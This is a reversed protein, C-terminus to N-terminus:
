LAPVRARVGDRAAGGGAAGAGVSAQEVDVRRILGGPGTGALAHLDLGRERALRRVVPSVVLPRGNVPPKSAPAAPAATSRGRRSGRRRATTATTGYGVLVNGSGTSVAPGAGAREEERYQEVAGAEGTATEISVLPAGVRIVAGGEGHVEAVRGAYPSPVEVVAKATEVEAVPQDVAVEDGVAVLWRVVEAETLGEGLDPLLFRSVGM